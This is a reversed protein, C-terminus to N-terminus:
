GGAIVRQRMAPAVLDLYDDPHDRVYAAIFPCTPILELGRERVDQLAAKALAGGLGQGEFRPDVETHDMTIKGGGLRYQAFGALQGDSFVEFREKDPNDRVAVNM